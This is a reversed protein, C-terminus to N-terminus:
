QRSVFVGRKKLQFAVLELCGIGVQNTYKVLSEHSGFDKWPLVYHLYRLHSTSSAATASSYVINCKEHSLLKMINVPICNGNRLIHCEDLIVTVSETGIWEIISDFLQINKLSGYSTYLYHSNTTVKDDINNYLAKMDRSAEAKLRKNISIWIGRSKHTTNREILTAAIIRGKGIGTADGLLFAKEGNNFAQCIACVTQEQLSSLQTAGSRMSYSIIPTNIEGLSRSECVITPHPKENKIPVWEVFEHTLM